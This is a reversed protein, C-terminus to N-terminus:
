GICVRIRFIRPLRLGEDTRHEMVAGTVSIDATNRQRMRRLLATQDPCARNVVRQFGRARVGVLGRMGFVKALNGKRNFSPGTAWDLEGFVHNIVRGM